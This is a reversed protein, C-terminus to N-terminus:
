RRELIVPRLKIDVAHINKGAFLAHVERHAAIRPKANLGVDAIEILWHDQDGATDRLAIEANPYANQLLKLLDDHTIPM